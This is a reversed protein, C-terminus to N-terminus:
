PLAPAAMTRAGRRLVLLGEVALLTLARHATGRSVGYWTALERTTPLLDGPGLIGADLSARIDDAIERYLSRAGVLWGGDRRALISEISKATPRPAFAPAAPQAPSYVQREATGLAADERLQHLEQALLEAARRDAPRVWHAYVRMTTAGGDSHGLRVAVTRLDM